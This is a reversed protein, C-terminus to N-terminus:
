QVLKFTKAESKQADPINWDGTQDVFSETYFLINEEVKDLSFAQLLSSKFLVETKGTLLNAMEISPAEGDGWPRNESTDCNGYIIYDKWFIMNGTSCFNNIVQKKDLLSLVVIDRSTYTGNSLAIYKEEGDNTVITAGFINFLGSINIAVKKNKDYVTIRGKRGPHDEAVDLLYVSYNINEGLLEKTSYTGLDVGDDEPIPSLTPTQVILLESTPTVTPKQTSNVMPNVTNHKYKNWRNLSSFYAPFSVIIGIFILFIVATLIIKQLFSIKYNIM